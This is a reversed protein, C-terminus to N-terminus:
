WLWTNRKDFDKQTILLINLDIPETKKYFKVVWTSRYLEESKNKQPKRVIRYTNHKRTGLVKKLVNQTGHLFHRIKHLKRTM